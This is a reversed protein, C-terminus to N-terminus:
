QVSAEGTNPDISVTSSCTGISSQLTITGSNLLTSATDTTANYASPAGLCDFQIASQTNLNVAGIGVNATTPDGITVTYAANTLPNTLAQLPATDNPRYLVTYSNGSFEIVHKQQTAIARNQAYTLDAMLVRAAAAVHLDERTGLQPVIAASAIGLVLVVTLIEVLTYGRLNRTRM